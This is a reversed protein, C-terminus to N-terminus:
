KKNVVYGYLATREPSGYLVAQMHDRAQQQGSRQNYLTTIVKLTSSM